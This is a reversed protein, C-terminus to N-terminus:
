KRQEFSVVVGECNSLIPKEIKVKVAQAGFDAVVLAAIEEALTEILKRPREGALKKVAETVQYYDITREIEDGLGGIGAVSEIALSVKIDQPKEREEDPVGVFVPIRLKRVVIDERIPECASACLKPLGAVDPLIVQPSAPALREIADYGSLVAVSTVGGAEAAHIDHVMDGVYATESKALQHRNLVEAMKECKDLVGGYIAEFYSSLGFSKAQRLLAEENMSSLVFLRLGKRTAEELFRQTPELPQVLHEAEFFAKKFLVELDALEQGPLFEEYFDPYPLRFDRRFTEASFAPKGYHEFVVNTAALTATFDDVLTGSWDLILNRIM